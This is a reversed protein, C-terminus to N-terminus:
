QFAWSFVPLRICAGHACVRWLHITLCPCSLRHFVQQSPESLICAEANGNLAAAAFPSTLPAHNAAPPPLEQERVPQM